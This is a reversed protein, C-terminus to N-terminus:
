EKDIGHPTDILYDMIYEAANRGSFVCYGIMGGSMQYNYTEKYLKCADVGVAFLGDIPKGSCDLVRNDLDVDIGGITTLIEMGQRVAFFPGKKVPFMYKPDKKFDVDCGTECLENYREVCACLNRPPVGMREALEEITDARFVAGTNEDAAANLEDRLRPVPDGEYFNLFGNIIGNQILMDINEQDLVVFTKKQGVVANNSLATLKKMQLDEAVFRVGEENVNLLPQFCTGLSMQEAIDHGVPRTKGLFASVTRAAGARLAMAIGDGYNNNAKGKMLTSDYGTLESFLEMNGGSGGSAIMGAAANIRYISGNTQDKAWVGTVAGNEVILELARTERLVTAGHEEVAKSLAAVAQGGIRDEWWHFCPFASIGRYNSVESYKVGLEMLWKVNDASKNVYNLWLAASCRYNTYILEEEVIDAAPVPEIGAAKQLESGNAFMGETRALNGGMNRRMEVVIVGAGRRRAEIAACMGSGGGGIIAIDTNFVANPVFSSDFKTETNLM